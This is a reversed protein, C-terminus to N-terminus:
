VIDVMGETHEGDEIGIGDFIHREVLAIERCAETGSETGHYVYPLFFAVVREPM